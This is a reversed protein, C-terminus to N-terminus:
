FSLGLLQVLQTILFCVLCATGSTLLATTVTWRWGGTEHKITLLTTGCPFHLVSFVMVNLATLWTWGRALLLERMAGLSELEMLAGEGLYSMILTPIVIENAPLGLIFALLIYGDLGMLRGAPDLYGALRRVINMGGININALIWVLAGAPAAVKVARWLVFLTRDLVSRVLVQLVQPRRYPPLELAFSSSVGKLMTNSLIYSVVFTMGIGLLVMGAVTLSAVAASHKAGGVGLFLVAMSILLPFRGNCPIFNNTLIAILRERPSDIIRAAMVGAANCGFGMAMTLAQKGHAGCRKFINDLNFAVRPLYGLDELLSFLPFFIAMPPLMVSVVWALCRFTGLVVLGHLWDPVGWRLFLSTLQEELMFFLAALASSPYNAGSITLWLIGGLLLIMLPFGVLRSTLLDDVIKTWDRGRADVETTVRSAIAEARQYISTVIEDEIETESGLRKRLEQGQSM